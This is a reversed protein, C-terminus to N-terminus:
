RHTAEDRVGHDRAADNSTCFFCKVGVVALEVLQQRDSRTRFNVFHSVGSLSLM